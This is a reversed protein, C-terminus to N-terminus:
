LKVDDGSNFYGTRLPISPPNTNRPPAERVLIIRRKTRKNAKPDAYKDEENVNGYNRAEDYIPSKSKSKPKPSDNAYGSARSNNSVEVYSPPRAAPRVSAYGPEPRDINAYSPPRAQPGVVAYSGSNKRANKTIILNDPKVVKLDERRNYEGSVNKKPMIDNGEADKRRNYEGSANYVLPQRANKKLNALIEEQARKAAKREKRKRFYTKIGGGSMKKTHNRHKRGICKKTHRHAKSKKHTHRRTKGM